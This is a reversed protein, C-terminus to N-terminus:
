EVIMYYAKENTDSIKKKYFIIARGNSIPAGVLSSTGIDLNSSNKLINNYNDIVFILGYQQNNQATPNDTLILMTNNDVLLIPDTNDINTGYSYSSTSLLNLNNSNDTIYTENNKIHIINGNSLTTPFGDSDYSGSYIYSISDIIINGNNDIISYKTGVSNHHHVLLINTGIQTAKEYYSELNHFQTQTKTITGSNNMIIFHGGRDNRFGDGWYSYPLFLSGNSFGQARREGHIGSAYSQESLIENGSQDIIKYNEGYRLFINGNSILTAEIGSRTTASTGSEVKTKSVVENGSSNIIWYWKGSESTASSFYDNNWWVNYTILINGNNLKIASSITIYHKDLNLFETPGSVITIDSSTKFGYSSEYNADINNGSSDKVNTTVRLKFFTNGIFNSTPDLTFTKNSNSPTPSASM